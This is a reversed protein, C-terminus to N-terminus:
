LDTYQIVINFETELRQEWNNMPRLIKKGNYTWYSEGNEKTTVVGARKIIDNAPEMQSAKVIKNGFLDTMDSYKLNHNLSNLASTEPFKVM